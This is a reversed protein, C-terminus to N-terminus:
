ARAGEASERRTEKISLRARYAMREREYRKKHKFDTELTGDALLVEFLRDDLDAPLSYINTDEDLNVLGYELLRNMPNRIDRSKRGMERAVDARTCPELRQLYQLIPRVTKGLKGAGWRVRPVHFGIEEDAKEGDGENISEYLAVDQNDLLLVLSGSNTGRGRDGRMIWGSKKLRKLSNVITVRSVRAELALDRTSISIEVGETHPKGYKRGLEILSDLVDLDTFGGMGKFPVSHLRDELIQLKLLVEWGVVKNGTPPEVDALMYFKRWAIREGKVHKEITRDVATLRDRVEPDSSTRELAEINEKIRDAAIGLSIGYATAGMTLNQRGGEAWLVRLRAMEAGWAKLAGAYTNTDLTNQSSEHSATSKSETGGLDEVLVRLDEVETRFVESETADLRIQEGGIPNILPNAGFGDEAAGRYPLFIGKGPGSASSPMFEPYSLNLQKSLDAIAVLMEHAEGQLLSEALFVYLHVGRGTTGQDLYVYVRYDELVAILPMVDPLESGDFDLAMFQVFWRTEEGNTEPLTPIIGLAGVGDHSKPDLHKNYAGLHAGRHRTTVEKKVNGSGDCHIGTCLL